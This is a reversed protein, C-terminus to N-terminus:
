IFLFIKLTLSARFLSSKSVLWFICHPHYTDSVLTRYVVSLETHCMYIRSIKGTRKRKGRKTDYNQCGLLLLLSLRLPFLDFPDNDVLKDFLVCVKGHVIWCWSPVPWVFLRGLVIVVLSYFARAHLLVGAERVPAGKLLWIARGWQHLRTNDDNLTEIISLSNSWEPVRM